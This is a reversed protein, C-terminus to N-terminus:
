GGDRLRELGELILDLGLEFGGEEGERPELHQRVHEGLTPYHDAALQELFRAARGALTAGGHAYRLQMTTYGLIYAELVHFAGASSRAKRPCSTTSPRIM